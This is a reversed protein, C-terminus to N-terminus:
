WMEWVGDPLVTRMVRWHGVASEEHYKELEKTDLRWEEEGEVPKTYTFPVELEEKPQLYHRRSLSGLFDEERAKRFQFAPGKSKSSEADHVNKVCFVIMNIFDTEGPKLDKKPPTERFIRCAPFVAHITKLVMNTSGLTLDGAYNIAVAGDDTLLNYLGRMFESTFLAVPEAGGTFVDHIIYKFSAPNSASKESVYTVADDLIATHNISLDFYKTAYEHVVPDLEVITTNIGHAIFANPATGIGLGIVLASEPSPNSDEPTAPLEILRVAELIVFVTFVTERKTQGKEYATPTVLWEGGLLSHDCRLLRYSHDAYNELVSIYGTISEKRDLLTYNQTSVLTSNALQFGHNTPIHPNMLLMHLIAPLAFLVTISPTVIASMTALFMQLGVRSAYMSTGIIDPLLDRSSKAVTSVTFYSVTPMAFDVMLSSMDYGGPQITGLLGGAAYVSLFLMPFYTLSEIVLPGYEIGLQASYPFLLCQFVPAWFAVVAIYNAANTPLYDKLGLRALSAAIITLTLARQHHLSAPISGFVPSLNLQSIPSAIGAILLLAAAHSVNEILTGSPPQSPQQEPVPQPTQIKVENAKKKQKQRSLM